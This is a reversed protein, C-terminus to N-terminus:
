KKAFLKKLVRYVRFIGYFALLIGLAIRISGNVAEAFIDTFLFIGAFALYFVSMVCEFINRSLNQGALRETNETRRM